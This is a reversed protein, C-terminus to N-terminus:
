AFMSTSYTDSAHNVSCNMSSKARSGRAIFSDFGSFPIIFLKQPGPSEMQYEIADTNTVHLTAKYFTIRTGADFHGAMKIHLSSIRGDHWYLLAGGSQSAICTFRKTVPTYLAWLLHSLPPIDFVHLFTWSIAM